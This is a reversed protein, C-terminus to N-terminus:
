PSSPPKPAAAGQWMWVPQGPFYPQLAITYKRGLDSGHRRDLELLGFLAADFSHCRDHMIIATAMLQRDSFLGPRTFDRVYIADAQMSQNLGSYLENGVLFPRLLRSVIPFFRHFMFGQHRMFIDIDAFLPQGIYMPLFSVETHVVSAGRLREVANSFAMLEAGPIDIKIFDVGVTEPVDDLRATEVEVTSFIRSWIPCLHFLRIVAPNPALLSNLGSAHCIRLTHKQGDGTAQPLYTEFPGKNKNLEVLSPPHPEFGVLEVDVAKLPGLYPPDEGDTSSAGIDVVKLRLNSEILTKFPAPPLQRLSAPEM